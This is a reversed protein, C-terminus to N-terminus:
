ATMAMLPFWISAAQHLPHVLIRLSRYIRRRQSLADGRTRRCMAVKVACTETFDPVRDMVAAADRGKTRPSRRAPDLARDIADSSTKLKVVHTLKIRLEFAASVWPQNAIGIFGVPSGPALPRFDRLLRGACSRNRCGPPNTQGSIGQQM